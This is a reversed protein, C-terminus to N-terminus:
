ASVAITNLATPSVLFAPASEKNSFTIKLGNLDLFAKGLDANGANVRCANRHGMLWYQGLQDEIIVRWKGQVLTKITNRLQANMKPITIECAQTFAVTGNENNAEVAQTFSGVEVDQQIEYASSTAGTFNEITDLTSGTLGMVLGSNFEMVWIRAIGGTNDRCALAIGSNLVCSM